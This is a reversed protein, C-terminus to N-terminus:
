KNLIDYVGTMQALAETYFEESMSAAMMEMQQSAEARTYDPLLTLKGEIVHFYPMVTRTSMVTDLSLAQKTAEVKVFSHNNPLTKHMVECKVLPGGVYRSHIDIRHSAEVVADRVESKVQAIRNNMQALDQRLGDAINQALREKTEAAAISHLLTENEKKLNEAESMRKKHTSRKMIIFPLKM